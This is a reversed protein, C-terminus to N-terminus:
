FYLFLCFIREILFDHQFCKLYSCISLLLSPLQLRQFDSFNKNFPLLSILHYSLYAFRLIKKRYSPLCSCLSAFRGCFSLAQLYFYINIHRNEWIFQSSRWPIGFFDSLFPKSIVPSIIVLPIHDWLIFLPRFWSFRFCSLPFTSERLYFLLPLPHPFCLPIRSTPSAVRLLQKTLSLSGDSPRSWYLSTPPWTVARLPLQCCELTLYLAFPVSCSLFCSNLGMCKPTLLLHM